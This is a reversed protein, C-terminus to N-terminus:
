IAIRHAAMQIHMHQHPRATFLLYTLGNRKHVKEGHTNHTLQVAM